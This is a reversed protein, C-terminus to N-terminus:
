LMTERIVATRCAETSQEPGWITLKTQSVVQFQWQHKYAVLRIPQMCILRTTTQRISVLHVTKRGRLSEQKNKSFCACQLLAQSISLLLKDLEEM